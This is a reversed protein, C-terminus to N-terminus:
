RLTRIVPPLLIGTIMRVDGQRWGQLMPILLRSTSALNFSKFQLICKGWETSHLRPLDGIGPTVVAVDASHVVANEFARAAEQDTWLDSRGFRLGRHEIGHVAQQAPRLM